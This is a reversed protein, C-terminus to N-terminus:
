CKCGKDRTKLSSQSIWVSQFHHIGSTRTSAARPSRPQLQSHWITSYPASPTQWAPATGTCSAYARQSASVSRFVRIAKPCQQTSKNRDCQSSGQLAPVRVHYRSFCRTRSSTTRRSCVGEHSMVGHFATQPPPDNWRFPNDTVAVKQGYSSVPKSKVTQGLLASSHM